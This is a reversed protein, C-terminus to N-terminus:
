FLVALRPDTFDRIFFRVNELHSFESPGHGTTIVVADMGANQAAEVGKPVDEFVLCEEPPLQLAAACKLFTEPNPKSVVVDDATIIASFYARLPLNDVVFDVNFPIAATGIAMAIHQAKAKELFGAVGNVGRLYPLFGAQYIQEKRVSIRGKEEETFHERGFIRDLVESNKGYMERAVEDVTLTAGLEENLIRHWAKTHFPMDDILTGNLDFIFGKYKM